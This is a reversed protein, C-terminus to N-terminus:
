KPPKLMLNMYQEKINTTLEQLWVQFLYDLTWFTMGNQRLIYQIQVVADNEAQIFHV